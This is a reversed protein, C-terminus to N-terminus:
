QDKVSALREIPTQFLGTYAAYRESYPVSRVNTNTQQQQVMTFVVGSVLKSETLTDPLNYM